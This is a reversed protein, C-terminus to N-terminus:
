ALRARFRVKAGILLCLTLVALGWHSAAPIDGCQDDINVCGAPTCEDRTCVDGDDCAAHNVTHACGDAAEDCSDMTCAVGDDCIPPPIIQCGSGSDCTELGNCFLGDDQCVHIVLPEMITCSCEPVPQSDCVFTTSTCNSEPANEQFHFSFEGCADDSVIMHLSGAYGTQGMDVVVDSGNITGGIRFILSSVDVASIQELGALLYDPRSVDLNAGLQPNHGAGVCGYSPNCIPFRPDDCPCLDRIMPADWGVPLVLGAMGSTAGEHMMVSSQFTQVHMLASGWCSVFIEADIIDTPMVAIFNTPTISGGNIAVAKLSFLPQGALGTCDAPMGFQAFAIGNILVSFILGTMFTTNRM